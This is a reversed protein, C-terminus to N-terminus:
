QGNTGCSVDYKKGITSCVFRADYVMGQIAPKEDFMVVTNTTSPESVVITQGGYMQTRANGYIYNGARYASSYHARDGANHLGRKAVQIQIM